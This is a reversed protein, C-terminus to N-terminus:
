EIVVGAKAVLRGYREQESKLFQAAAEPSNLILFDDRKAFGAKVEPENFAAAFADHLRRAQVPPLGKPAILAFWGAVDVAPFGQEAITPVDPLSPARSKGMVGIARLTGSRVQGQVAAIAAAGMEVQGAMIDTIMPGMGKYPIHRAKAGAEDLYLEAALQIITGNGSSAYNLEGPRSKLLAQLEKATKAPVKPNVVLVFPSGGIVTIPTIDHLSDYPLKKFVSPNVAHNNSVIAVTNGDPAAKILTQTGTIGGAGPLNEIVVAQGGLAKTLATQASRTIVDVGSGAGVPLIVRLPAGGQAHASGAFGAGLTTTAAAAAAMLARRTVTWQKM